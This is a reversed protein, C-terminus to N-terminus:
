TPGSEWMYMKLPIMGSMKFADAFPFNWAYTELHVAIGLPTHNPIITGTGPVTTNTDAFEAIFDSDPMIILKKNMLNVGTSKYNYGVFSYTSTLINKM